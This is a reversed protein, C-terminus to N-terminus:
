TLTLKKTRRIKLEVFKKEFYIVQFLLSKRHFKTDLQSFRSRFRKSHKVRSVTINGHLELSMNWTAYVNWSHDATQQLHHANQVDKWILQHGVCQHFWCEPALSDVDSQLLVQQLIHSRPLSKDGCKSPLIFSADRQQLIQAVASSLHDVLEDHELIDPNAQDSLFHYLIRTLSWLLHHTMPKRNHRPFLPGVKVTFSCCM